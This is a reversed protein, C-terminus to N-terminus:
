VSISRHTHLRIWMLFAPSKVMLIFAIPIIWWHILLHFFYQHFPNTSISVFSKNVDVIETHISMLRCLLYEIVQHLCMMIRGLRYIFAFTHKPIILFILGKICIGPGLLCKIGPIKENWFNIEIKPLLINIYKKLGWRAITWILVSPSIKKIKTLKLM